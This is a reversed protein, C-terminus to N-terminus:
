WRSCKVISRCWSGKTSPSVTLHIGPTNAELVAADAVNAIFEALEFQEPNLVGETLRVEALSRAILSRLGTLSRDLVSATSGTVGVHGTRLVAFSVIATNVLNRM